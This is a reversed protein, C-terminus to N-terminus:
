VLTILWRYSHSGLIQSGIAGELLML